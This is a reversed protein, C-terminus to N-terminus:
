YALVVVLIVGQGLRVMDAVAVAALVLHETGVMDEQAVQVQMGVLVVREAKTQNEQAVLVAQEMFLQAVLVVLPQLHVEQEEV